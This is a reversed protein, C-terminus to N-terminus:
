TMTTLQVSMFLLLPDTQHLVDIRAETTGKLAQRQLEELKELSDQMDYCVVAM